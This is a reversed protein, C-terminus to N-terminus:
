SECSLVSFQSRQAGLGTLGRVHTQSESELKGHNHNHTRVRSEDSTMQCGLGLCDIGGLGMIDIM